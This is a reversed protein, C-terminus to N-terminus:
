CDGISEPLHTIQNGSARLEVLTHALGVSEPFCGRIQNYSIDLLKLCPLAFIPGPIQPIQNTNFNLHAIM